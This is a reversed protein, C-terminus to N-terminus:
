ASPWFFRHFRRCRHRRKADHWKDVSFNGPTPIGGPCLCRSTSKNTAERRDAPCKYYSTATRQFGATGPRSFISARNRPARQSHCLKLRRCRSYHCDSRGEYPLQHSIRGIQPLFRESSKAHIPKRQRWLTNSPMLQPICEDPFIFVTVIKPPPGVALANAVNSARAPFLGTMNWRAFRVGSTTPSDSTGAIM